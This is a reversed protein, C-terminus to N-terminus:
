NEQFNTENNFEIKLSDKIEQETKGDVFLKYVESSLTDEFIFMDSKGYYLKLSNNNLAQITSKLNVYKKNFGM